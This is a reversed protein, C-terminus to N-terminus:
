DHFSLKGSGPSGQQKLRIFGDRLQQTALSTQLTSIAQGQGELLNIFLRHEHYIGGLGPLDDPTLNFDAPGYSGVIQNHRIHTVGGPLDIMGSQPFRIELSAKPTKIWYHEQAVGTNPTIALHLHRGRRSTGHLFFDTDEGAPHVWLTADALSDSLLFLCLDLAHVATSTFDEDHRGVRSLRAEVGQIEAPDVLALAKEVYVSHRRNYAVIHPLAGVDQILSRHEEASSAPPKETIFPIRREIAFRLLKPTVKPNVLFALGDPEMQNIFDELDEFCGCGLRTALVEAKQLDLDCVGVYDARGEAQLRELMPLHM